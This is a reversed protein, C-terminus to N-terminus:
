YLIQSYYRETWERGFNRYLNDKGPDNDHFVRCFRKQYALASNMLSTDVVPKAENVYRIWLELYKKFIGEIETIHEETSGLFFGYGSSFENIWEFPNEMPYTIKSAEQFLEKM